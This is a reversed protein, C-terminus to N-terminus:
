QSKIGALRERADDVEAIGSDADKWLDLFEEYHDIAKATDGQQEYIKGLMFFSKAYIDGYFVRGTTLALIRQCWKEAEQVDGQAYYASALPGYFLTHYCNDPNTQHALLAVADEYYEIARETNGKDFEIQGMALNYYRIIKRNM